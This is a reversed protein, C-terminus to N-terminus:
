VREAHVSAAAAKVAGAAVQGRNVLARLLGGVVRLHPVISLSQRPADRREEEQRGSRRVMIGERHRLQVLGAGSAGLSSGGAKILFETDNGWM